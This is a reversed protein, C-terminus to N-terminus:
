ILDLFEEKTIEAGKLISILTGRDLEDHLPVTVTIKGDDTMKALRVHSGKQRNVVFGEKVLIKILDKGSIVPLGTM